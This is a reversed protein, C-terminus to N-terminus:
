YKRKASERFNRLGASLAKMVIDEAKEGFEKFIGKLNPSLEILSHMDLRRERRKRFVNKLCAKADDIVGIPYRIM